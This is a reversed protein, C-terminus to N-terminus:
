FADRIRWSPTGGGMVSKTIQYAIPRGYAANLGNQKRLLFETMKGVYSRLLGQGERKQGGDLLDVTAPGRRLIAIRPYL